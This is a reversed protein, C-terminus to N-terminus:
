INLLNLIEEAIKHKDLKPYNYIEGQKDIISVINTDVGFAPNDESTQNLIIFDLNKKIIKSKANEIGNSTELAFGILIQKTKIEGLSKAIDPNPILELFLSDGNRKIKENAITKVRYDGVAAACIAADCSTFNNMAANYMDEASVINIIKLKPNELNFNLCNPGIILIVEHGKSIADKALM